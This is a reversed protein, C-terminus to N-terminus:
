QTLTQANLFFSDADISIEELHPLKLLSHPLIMSNEVIHLIKLNTLKEIANTSIDNKMLSLKTLNSLKELCEGFIYWNRSLDLSTLTTFHVLVNDYIIQDQPLEMLVLPPVLSLEQLNRNRYKSLVWPSFNPSFFELGLIIGDIIKSWLKSVCSMKRFDNQRWYLTMYRNIRTKVENVKLFIIRWVEEPVVSVTQNCEEPLIKEVLVKTDRSYENLLVIDLNSEHPM